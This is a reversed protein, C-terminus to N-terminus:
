KKYKFMINFNSRTAWLASMLGAFSVVGMYIAISIIWFKKIFIFIIMFIVSVFAAITTLFLFESLNKLPRYQQKEWHEGYESKLHNKYVKTSYLSQEMFPVLFSQIAFVLSGSTFCISIWDNYSDFKIFSIGLIDMCFREITDNYCIIFLPIILWILIKVFKMM